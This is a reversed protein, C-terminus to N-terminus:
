PPLATKQNLRSLFCWTFPLMVSWHPLHSATVTPLAGLVLEEPEYLTIGTLGSLDLTADSQAPRGVMRKTGQGIIELSKSETLAWQVAAEVDKADRVRLADPM